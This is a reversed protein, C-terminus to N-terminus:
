GHRWFCSGRGPRYAWFRKLTASCCASGSEAAPLDRPDQLGQSLYQCQLPHHRTAPQGRPRSTAGNPEAPMGKARTARWLLPLVAMGAVLVIWTLTNLEPAPTSIPSPRRSRLLFDIAITLWMAGLCCAPLVITTFRNTPLLAALVLAWLLYWHWFWFSGVFLFVMTMAICGQWLVMDGSKARTGTARWFRLLLVGAIGLFLLTAGQATARWAAVEPWGMCTQLVWYAVFAPSNAILRVREGLMRPLTAWGGLPAYLIWSLVLGLICAGSSIRIARWWGCQRAIWVGLVPLLLLATIKVHAALALALLGLLWHHRQFLLITGLILVLMLMDNHAGIATATLLLPNWLWGLLAAAALHPSRRWTIAYILAGCLGALGIALLRYGLIYSALSAPCDCSVAGVLAAVSGSAYEWLPGYTDVYTTWNVYPYFLQGAFPAPPTALPSVGLVVQLRGRFLYDFIDLSDGPYAGLLVMSSLLWGGVILLLATRERQAEIQVALRLALVYYAMLLAYVYPLLLGIRWSFGALTAWSAQPHALGIALPYPARLGLTYLIANVLGLGVMLHLPSALTRPAAIKM